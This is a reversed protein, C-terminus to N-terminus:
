QKKLLNELIEIMNMFGTTHDHEQYRERMAWCADAAKQPNAKLFAILPAIEYDHTYKEVAAEMQEQINM